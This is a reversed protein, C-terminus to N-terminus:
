VTPIRYVHMGMVTLSTFPSSVFGLRSLKTIPDLFYLRFSLGLQKELCFSSIEDESLFLNAFSKLDGLSPDRLVLQKM